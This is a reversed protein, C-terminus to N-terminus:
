AARRLPARAQEVLTEHLATIARDKDTRPVIFQADVNRTTQQVAVPVVDATELAVLGRTLVRLGGLDRGIM